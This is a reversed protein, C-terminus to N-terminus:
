GGVAGGSIVVGDVLFTPSSAASRRVHDNGVMGIERLIDRLDGALTVEHVPFAFEGGEFWWGNAGRSFQGTALNTGSGILDTDVLRNLDSESLGEFPPFLQSRPNAGGVPPPGAAPESVGDPPLALPEGAGVQPGM